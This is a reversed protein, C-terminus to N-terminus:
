YGNKYPEMKMITDVVKFLEERSTGYMITLFGGKHCFKLNFGSIDQLEKDRFGCWENPMDRKASFVDGKVSQITEIAIEKEYVTAMYIAKTDTLMARADKISKDLIILHPHGNLVSEEIAKPVLTEAEIMENQQYIINDLYGEMAELAKRFQVYQESESVSSRNYNNFLYGSDWLKVGNDNKDIRIAFNRLLQKVLHHEAKFSVSHKKLWNFILGCSSLPIRDSTDEWILNPDSQHHDFNKKTADFVQGVDIVFNDSEKAMKLTEPDRTRIISLDNVPLNFWYRSLLAIAALEDVHFSDSHTYILPYSLEINLKDM